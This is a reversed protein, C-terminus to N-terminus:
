AESLVAGSPVFSLIVDQLDLIVVKLRECIVELDGLALENNWFKSILKQAAILRNM